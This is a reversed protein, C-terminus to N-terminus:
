QEVFICLFALFYICKIKRRDEGKLQTLHYLLAYEYPNGTPTFPKTAHLAKVRAYETQAQRINQVKNEGQRVTRQETRRAFLYICPRKRCIQENHAFLWVFLSSTLRRYGTTCTDHGSISCILVHALGGAGVVPHLAM